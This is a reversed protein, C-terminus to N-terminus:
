TESATGAPRMGARPSAPQASPAIPGTAPGAASARAGPIVGKTLLPFPSTRFPQPNTLTKGDTPARHNARTPLTSFFTFSHTHTRPSFPPFLQYACTWACDHVLSSSRLSFFLRKGFFRHRLRLFCHCSSSLVFFFFFFTHVRIMRYMDYHINQNTIAIWKNFERSINGFDPLSCNRESPRPHTHM